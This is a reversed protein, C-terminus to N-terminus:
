KSLVAQIRQQTLPDALESKGFGRVAGAAVAEEQYEPYNTVLMVPTPKLRADQQMAKIIDLGDSYDIDLKRNVLVLDYEQSKLKTEADSWADARDVVAKFQSTLMRSIAGHDPDCQGVSLVRPTKNM